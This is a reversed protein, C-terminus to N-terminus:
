LKKYWDYKRVHLVIAFLLVICSAVKGEVGGIKFFLVAIVGVLFTGILYWKCLIIITDQNHNSNKFYINAYYICFCLLIIAGFVFLIGIMVATTGFEPMHSQRYDVHATKTIIYSLGLFLFSHAFISLYYEPKKTKMQKNVM